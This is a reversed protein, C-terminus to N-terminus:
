TQKGRPKDADAYDTAKIVLINDVEKAYQTIDFSFPTYGGDHSGLYCGNLWVKARYDVAGFKLLM